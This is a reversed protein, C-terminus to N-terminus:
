SKEARRHIAERIADMTYGRGVLWRITKRERIRLDTERRYRVDAKEVLDDLRADLNAEPVLSELIRDAEVRSVGKRLLDMRVRAPGYKGLRSQAYMRGFAADDLLGSETLMIVLRDATELPVDLLKLRQRVEQESRPRYELFRMIRSRVRFYLDDELLAACEHVTLTRGKRLGHAAVLDVHIGFAFADDLYISCRNTDKRQWVMRTVTGGEEPPPTRQIPKIRGISM